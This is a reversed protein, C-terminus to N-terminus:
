EASVKQAKTAKFNEIFFNLSAGMEVARNARKEFGHGEDPFIILKSKPSKAKVAKFFQVAEGAPVRPDNLGQFILLPAKVQSIWKMPSLEWLEAKHISPDGYESIRLHRRYPATNELFSLLNSIGVSSVGADYAGSFKTMAILTSYGGYSTGQIGVFIKQSPFKKRFHLAADEIDSVVKLREPGDDAKMFSKGYGSSGRVNPLAFVFGAKNFLHADINFGPASAGEPGGHFELIVPCAFNMCGTPTWVFVPFTKGDRAMIQEAIPRIQGVKETEPLSARTWEKFKLSDWDVVAIEPPLDSREVS